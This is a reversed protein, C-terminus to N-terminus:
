SVLVEGKRRLLSGAVEQGGRRRTEERPPPTWIPGEASACRSSDAFPGMAAADQPDAGASTEGRVM